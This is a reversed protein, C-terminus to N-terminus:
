RKRWRWVYYSAESGTNFIVDLISVEHFFDQHRQKYKPYNEYEKWIVKINNKNFKEKNLYSIGAKGSIYTDGNLNKIIDILRQNKNSSKKFDRSDVIETNIDLLNCIKRISYQNFQSLSNWKKNIYIM